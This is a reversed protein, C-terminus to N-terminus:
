ERRPRDLCRRVFSALAAVSWPKQIVPVEPAESGLRDDIGYGTWFAFAPRPTPQECVRARLEPGTMQPMVVDSLVLAVSEVEDLVRLADVGNAAVFVRYGLQELVRKAACRIAEQDEVLLLTESGRPLDAAVPEDESVPEDTLPLWVEVTTGRGPSSSLEVFGRHQGVLGYVTALGLGTGRGREKTTFFPDFARARVETPMGHGSDKVWLVSYPRGESTAAQRTGIEITGRGDIADRANTALNVVIQEIAVIDARVVLEGGERQRRMEISEPLLRRLTPVINDVVSALEVPRLFLRSQRSFNMLQRVLEGGREAADVIQAVMEDRVTPDGEHSVLEASARIVTLLNNFDHAIGGTLQGIADMKQAQILQAEMARQETVDHGVSIRTDTPLRFNAWLQIHAAGDKAVVEYERFLGDGRAIDEHVARLTEPDPYFVRLPDELEVIEAQTWGLCRVCERNWLVCTGDEDFADVMVPAHELITRFREESERLTRLVEDDVEAM